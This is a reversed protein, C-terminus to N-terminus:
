VVGQQKDFVEEQLDRGEAVLAAPERPALRVGRTQWWSLTSQRPIPLGETVRPALCSDCLGACNPSDM